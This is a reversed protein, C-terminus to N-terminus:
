RLHCSLQVKALPGGSRSALCLLTTVLFTMDATKSHTDHKVDELIAQAGLDRAM